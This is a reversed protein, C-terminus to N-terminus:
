RRWYIIAISARLMVHLKHRRMVQDAVVIDHYRM